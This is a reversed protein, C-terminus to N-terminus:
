KPQNNGPQNLYATARAIANERIDMGFLPYDLGHYNKGGADLKGFQSGSQDKVFLFGNRCEASTWAPVPAQLPPFQV